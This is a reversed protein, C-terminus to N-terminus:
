HFFRLSVGICVVQDEAGDVIGPRLASESEGRKPGCRVEAGSNDRDTADGWRACGLTERGARRAHRGDPHKKWRAPGFACKTYRFGSPLQAARKVSGRRTM